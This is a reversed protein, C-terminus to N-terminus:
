LSVYRNGFLKSGVRVLTSGANIAERYDNSMGMSLECFSDSDAFSGAKMDQFLQSLLSFERRIQEINDTNSAMGM